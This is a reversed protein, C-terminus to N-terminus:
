GGRGSGAKGQTLTGHGKGAVLGRRLEQAAEGAVHLLKTLRAPPRRTVSQWLVLTRSTDLQCRAHM